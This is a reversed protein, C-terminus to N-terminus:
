RHAAADLAALMADADPAEPAVDAFQPVAECVQEPTWIWALPLWWQGAPVGPLDLLATIYRARDAVPADRLWQPPAPRSDYPRRWPEAAAATGRGDATIASVSM